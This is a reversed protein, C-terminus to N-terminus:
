KVLGGKNNIGVVVEFASEATVFMPGQKHPTVICWSKRDEKAKVEGCPKCILHGYKARKKGIGNTHCKICYGNKNSPLKITSLM